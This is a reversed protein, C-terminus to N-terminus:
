EVVVRGGEGEEEEGGTKKANWAVSRILVTEKARAAVGAVVKQRRM